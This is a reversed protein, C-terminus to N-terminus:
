IRYLQIFLMNLSDTSNSFYNLKSTLPFINDYKKILEFIKNDNWQLYNSLSSEININIKLLGQRLENNYKDYCSSNYVNNFCKTRYNGIINEIYEPIKYKNDEYYISSIIDNIPPLYIDEMLGCKRDRLFYDARDCDFGCKLQASLMSVLPINIYDSESPFIFKCILVKNISEDLVLEMVTKISWEEHAGKLPWVHSFPAHGIDHLFAAIRLHKLEIECVDKNILRIHECVKKSMIYTGIMHELRSLKTNTLYNIFSLQSIEKVREFILINDRLIPIIESIDNVGYIPDEYM